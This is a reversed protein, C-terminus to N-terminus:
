IKNYLIFYLILNYFYKPCIIACKLFNKYKIYSFEVILILIKM